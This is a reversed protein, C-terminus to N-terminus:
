EVILHDVSLFGTWEGFNINRNRGFNNSEISMPQTMFPVVPYLVFGRLPIKKKEILPTQFNKAAPPKHPHLKSSSRCDLPIQSM